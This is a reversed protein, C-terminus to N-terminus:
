FSTFREYSYVLLHFVTATIVSPVATQAFQNLEGKQMIIQKAFDFKHQGSEKITQAFDTDGMLQEAVSIVTEYGEDTLNWSGFGQEDFYKLAEKGVIRIIQQKGVYRSDRLMEFILYMLRKMSSNLMLKNFNDRVNRLFARDNVETATKDNSLLNVGSVGQGTEGIAELFETVIMKYIESFTSLSQSAKTDLVAVKSPDNVLWFAKSRYKFTDMRTETTAVLTPPYLQKNVLEVFQSQLASLIKLLASVPQLESM